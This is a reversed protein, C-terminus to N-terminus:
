SGTLIHSKTTGETNGHTWKTLVLNSHTWPDFDDRKFNIKHDGYQHLSFTTLHIGDKIFTPHSTHYLRNAQTQSKGLRL